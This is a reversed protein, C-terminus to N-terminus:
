KNMFEEILKVRDMRERRKNVNIQLELPPVKIEYGNWEITELNQKAYPGCDVPEPIDLIDQPDSAIDIRAHLFIVGFDKTLWGNTDVIPEILYDSFVDTIEEISISDTMIDVDHPNMKIGRICAACSGTLWWNIKTGQTRQCFEKLAEEWPVPALYGLQDFMLKANDFYRKKIKDLYKADKPYIKIYGKGDNEYYCMQLIEEYKPHFESIRFIVKGDEEEFSVRM